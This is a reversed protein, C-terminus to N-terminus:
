QPLHPQSLKHKQQLQSIVNEILKVKNEQAATYAQTINITDGSM